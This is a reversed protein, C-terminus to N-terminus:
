HDNIVKGIDYINTGMESNFFKFFENVKKCADDERLFLLPDPYEILRYENLQDIEFLVYSMSTFQAKREHSLKDMEMEPINFEHLKCQFNAWGSKPSVDRQEHIYIYTISGKTWTTYSLVNCASRSRIQSFNIVWKTNSSDWAWVRVYLGPYGGTLVPLGLNKALNMLFPVRQKFSVGSDAHYTIVKITGPEVTAAEPPQRSSTQCALFFLTSTAVFIAWARKPIQM